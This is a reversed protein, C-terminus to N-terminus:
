PGGSPAVLDVERIEGAGLTFSVGPGVVGGRDVWVRIRDRDDPLDCLRYIGREDAVGEVSHPTELIAATAGSGQVGWTIWTAVVRAGPVPRGSEPDRVTGWAVGAMGDNCPDSTLAEMPVRLAVQASEGAAVEVEELGPLFGLADARSHTFSVGYVGPRVGEIRFRGDPGSETAFATGSLYVRAGELPRLRTADMVVGEVSGRLSPIQWGGEPRADVVESGGERIAQLSVAQRMAGSSMGVSPMRIWWRRVFWRGDGRQEFEVRGGLSRVDELPWPYRTYGYELYRLEATEGDLWLTGQIDPLSREVPEFALGVLGEGEGGGVVRFCHGDLFPDSLLVQMDPGYYTYSGDPHGRIFGNRALDEAPLSRIPDLAFGHQVRREEHRVRLSRPDLDREWSIIQVPLPTGDAALDVADLAKRAEEWLVAAAEGAGPRVRCRRDASAVIGELRIARSPARLVVEVGEEGDLRLIREVSEFGIREGRLRYEGAGPYRILFRGGEQSLVGALRDGAGDLLTVFGGVVPADSGEELFRGRIMQAGSPSAPLVPLLALLLALLPRRM